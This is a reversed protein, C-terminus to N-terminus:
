YSWWCICVFSANKQRHRWIERYSNAALISISSFTTIIFFTSPLHQGCLVKWNNRVNSSRSEPDAEAFAPWMGIILNLTMALQKCKVRRGRGRNRHQCPRCIMMAHIGLPQPLERCLIVWCRASKVQNFMIPLPAPM